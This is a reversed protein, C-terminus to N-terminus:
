FKNQNFFYFCELFSSAFRTQSAMDCLISHQSELCTARTRVRCQGSPKRERRTPKLHRNSYIDNSISCDLIELNSCFILGLLAQFSSFPSTQCSELTAVRILQCTKSKIQFISEGRAGDAKYAAAIIGSIIIQLIVLLTSFM